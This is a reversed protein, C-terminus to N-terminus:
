WKIELTVWLFKPFVTVGYGENELTKVVKELKNIKWYPIRIFCSNKQKIASNQIKDSIDELFFDFQLQGARNRVENADNRSLM